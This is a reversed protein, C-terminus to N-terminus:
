NHLQSQTQFRSAWCSKEWTRSHHRPLFSRKASVTNKRFDVGCVSWQPLPCSTIIQPWSIIPLIPLLVYLLYYFKPFSIDKPRFIYFAMLPYLVNWSSKSLSLGFHPFFCFIWNHSKINLKTDWLPLTLTSDSDPLSHDWERHGLAQSIPVRLFSFSTFLFAQFYSSGLISHTSLLLPEQASRQTHDAGSLCVLLVPSSILHPTTLFHGGHTSYKKKRIEVERSQRRKLDACRM